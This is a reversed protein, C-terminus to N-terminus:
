VMESAYITSTLWKRSNQRRCLLECCTWTSERVKERLEVKINGERYYTYILFFSEFFIMTIFIWWHNRECFVAWWVLTILSIVAREDFLGSLIFSELHKQLHVLWSAARRCASHPPWAETKLPNRRLAVRFSWCSACFVEAGDWLSNWTLSM